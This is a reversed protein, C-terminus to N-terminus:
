IIILNDFKDLSVTKLERLVDENSGENVFEDKMESILRDIIKKYIVADQLLLLGRWQAFGHKEKPTYGNELLM